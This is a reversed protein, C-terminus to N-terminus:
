AQTRRLHALLKEFMGRMANDLAQERLHPLYSTDFRAKPVSVKAGGTLFSQMKGKDDSIALRLTAEVEINAGVTHGELKIVAVDVQRTSLGWQQAESATLTVSAHNRCEDEFAQRVVDAHVKRTNDDTTGPSDDTTTKVM